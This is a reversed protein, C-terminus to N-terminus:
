SADSSTATRDFSIDRAVTHLLGNSQGWNACQTLATFDGLGALHGYPLLRFTSSLRRETALVIWNRGMTGQVLKLM